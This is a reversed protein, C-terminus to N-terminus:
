RYARTLNGKKTVIGARKLFDEASDTTKLIGVACERMKDTFVKRTKSTWCVPIADDRQMQPSKLHTQKCGAIKKPM